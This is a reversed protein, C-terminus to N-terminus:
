HVPIIIRQGTTVVASTLNNARILDYPTLGNQYAISNLTDGAIVTLHRLGAVRVIAPLSGGAATVPNGTAADTISGAPANLRTALAAYTEGAVTTVTNDQTPDSTNYMATGTFTKGTALGHSGSGLGLLETHGLFYAAKANPNGIANRMTTAQAIQAYESHYVVVSSNYPFAAGEIIARKPDYSADAIRTSLHGADYWLEHRFMDNFGEKLIQKSDDKMQDYTAVFNPHVLHHIAEHMITTFADWRGRRIEDPGASADRIYPNINIGGTAEAPWSQVTTDIDPILAVDTAIHEAVTDIDSQNCHHANGMRTSIWYNVWSKRGPTTQWQLTGSQDRLQSRVSYSGPTFRSAATHTAGRLYDGFYNQLESQVIDAMSNMQPVPLVPPSARRANFNTATTHVYPEINARIETELAPITACIADPSPVTIVGGSSTAGPILAAEAQARATASVAHTGAMVDHRGAGEALKAIKMASLAILTKSITAETVPDTGATVAPNEIAYDTNTLFWHTHLYDQLILIDAKANPMGTGVDNTLTLGFLSQAVTHNLAPQENTHIAAITKPITAIPVRSMSSLATVAPYEAVYDTNNLGWSSHLSDMVEVVDEKVNSPVVATNGVLRGSNLTVSQRQVARKLSMNKSQQVVHTLEHAMLKKGADGASYHGPAFVINNEHTYALANISKASEGAPTDTHLRVNSFDCGFRPEFFGKEDPSLSRGKGGLSQIYNEAQQPATATEGNAEKRHLNKEEEECHQCKRQVFPAAPKFFTEGTLPAHMRMVKDAMADAEQEYVDGPANVSLKPQVFAKSFFPANGGKSAPIAKNQQHTQIM